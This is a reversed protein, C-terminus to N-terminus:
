CRHKGKIDDEYMLSDNWIASKKRKGTMRDTYRNTNNGNKQM